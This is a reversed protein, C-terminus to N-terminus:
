LRTYDNIKGLDLVYETGIAELMNNFKANFVIETYLYSTQSHIPDTMTDNVAGLSIIFEGDSAKLTEATQGYLPSDTTIPHVVTWVTPLFKVKSRELDLSYYRRKIEGDSRENRSFIVNMDLNILKNSKENALRFMLATIDLYPSILANKSYRLKPNPRSFRGYLLGTLIAFIMLGGLAEVASVLSAWFGEPSIKGYGLTTLTQSSFFFAQWFPSHDQDVVIGDLNEIGILEYVSAFFLNVFFYFLIIVCFFKFWHMHIMRHYLNLRSEFSQNLKRVNFSGDNNVLRANESTVKTGFGSDERKKENEVLKNKM